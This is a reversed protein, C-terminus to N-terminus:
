VDPRMQKMNAIEVAVGPIHSSLWPQVATPKQENSMTESRQFVLESGGPTNLGQEACWAECRWESKQHCCPM